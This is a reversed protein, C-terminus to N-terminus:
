MRDLANRVLDRLARASKLAGERLETWAEQDPGSHVNQTGKLQDQLEQVQQELRGIDAAFQAEAEAAAVRAKMRIEQLQALKVALELKLQERAGTQTEM